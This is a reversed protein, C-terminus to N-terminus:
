TPNTSTSDLPLIVDTLSGLSKRKNQIDCFDDHHYLGTAYRVRFPRSRGVRIFYLLGWSNPDPAVPILSIVYTMCKRQIEGTFMHCKALINCNQSYRAGRSTGLATLICKPYFTNTQKPHEAGELSWALAKFVAKFRRRAAGIRVNQHIAIITLAIESRDRLFCLAYIM